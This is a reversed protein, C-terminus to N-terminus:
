AIYRYTKGSIIDKISSLKGEGYLEAIEEYTFKFILYLRRIVKVDSWSYIWTDNHGPPPSRYVIAHRMNEEQDGVIIHEHNVCYNNQCLHLGLSDGVPGKYLMHSLLHARIKYEKGEYNMKFLCYDEATRSGNYVKCKSTLPSVPWKPIGTVVIKSEFSSRAKDHFDINEMHEDIIKISM